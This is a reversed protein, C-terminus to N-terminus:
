HRRTAAQGSTSARPRSRSLPDGTSRLVRPSRLADSRMATHFFEKVPASTSTRLRAPVAPEVHVRFGDLLPDVGQFSTAAARVPAARLIDRSQFSGNVYVLSWRVQVRCRPRGCGNVVDLHHVRRGPELIRVPPKPEEAPAVPEALGPSGATAAAQRRARGTRAAGPQPKTADLVQGCARWRDGRAGSSRARGRLRAAGRVALSLLSIQLRDVQQGPPAQDDSGERSATRRPFMLLGRRARGAGPGGRHSQAASRSRRSSTAAGLKKTIAEVARQRARRPRPASCGSPSRPVVAVIRRRCREQSARRGQLAM